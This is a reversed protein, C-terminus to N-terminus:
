SVLKCLWCAYYRWCTEFLSSVATLKLAKNVANVSLRTSEKVAETHGSWYDNVYNDNCQHMSRMLTPVSEFSSPALHGFTQFKALSHFKLGIKVCFHADSSMFQPTWGRLGGRFNWAQEEDSMTFSSVLLLGDVLFLRPPCQLLQPCPFGSLRRKMRRSTAPFSAFQLCELSALCALLQILSLPLVRLCM